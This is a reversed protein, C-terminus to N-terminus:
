STKQMEDKEVPMSIVSAQKWRENVYSLTNGRYIGNPNLNFTVVSGATVVADVGVTIGASIFCGAGIWCGDELIIPSNRYPMSPKRFDHNGGCIFARQSICVNNGITLKEFNLLSAEEGIWVNDGIELKWPFHINIRPKFVVGRGVKAGFLVLLKKKLGSPYPFASLFFFMKVLYWIIEKGKSAGRDLNQSSDFDALNVRSSLSM